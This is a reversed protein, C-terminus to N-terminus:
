KVNSPGNIGKEGGAETSSSRNAVTSDQVESYKELAGLMGDLQNLISDLRVEVDRGLGDAQELKRLLAAIDQDAVTDDVDDVGDTSLDRGLATVDAEISSLSNHMGNIQKDKPTTTSQDKPSSM